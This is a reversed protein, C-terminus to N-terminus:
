TEVTEQDSYSEKPFYKNLEYHPNQPDYAPVGDQPGVIVIWKGKKMKKSHKKAHSQKLAEMLEQCYSDLKNKMIAREQRVLYLEWKTDRLESGIEKAKAIWRSLEQQQNEYLTDLAHLYKVTTVATYEPTKPDIKELAQVKECWTPTTQNPVLFFRAHTHEIDEEFIQCYV